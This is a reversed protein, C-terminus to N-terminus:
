CFLGTVYMPFIAPTNYYTDPSKEHLTWDCLIPVDKEAKGFLDERIVMVTCGATGLNKQAGMYIMAFKDWPIECTAVNSSMDGIVPQDKPILHWPFTKFDFEFGNVTENCCFHFFSADQDVKWRSVDVMKTCDNDEINNAVVNVECHKSIEDYNQQSWLGTMLLNAKRSPKLGILNKVIATYQMTAGGQQLLVRFNDPVRLLHRIETKTM